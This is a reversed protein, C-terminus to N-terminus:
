LFKLIGSINYKRMIRFKQTQLYKKIVSLNIDKFIKNKKFIKKYTKTKICYLLIEKNIIKIYVIERKKITKM